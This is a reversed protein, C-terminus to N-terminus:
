QRALHGLARGLRLTFEPTLPWEGARARIGDTGFLRMTM